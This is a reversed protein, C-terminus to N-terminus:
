SIYRVKPTKSRFITLESWIAFWSEGVSQRQVQNEQTDTEDEQRNIQRAGQQDLHRSSVDFGDDQHSHGDIVAQKDEAGDRQGDAEVLNDLHRQGADVQFCLYLHGVDSWNLDLLIANFSNLKFLSRQICPM